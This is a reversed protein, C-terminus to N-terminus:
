SLVLRHNAVFSQIISKHDAKEQPWGVVDVHREPDWNPDLQLGEGVIFHSRLEARGLIKRESFQQLLAWIEAESLEEHCYTSFEWRGDFLRPRFIKATARPPEVRGDIGNSENVWTAVAAVRDKLPAGADSAEADESVPSQKAWLTSGVGLLKFLGLLFDRM